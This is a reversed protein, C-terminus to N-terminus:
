TYFQNRLSDAVLQQSSRTGGPGREAQEDRRRRMPDHALRRMVVGFPSIMGYHMIGLVIPSVVRHLLKALGMWLRNLPALWQARATGLLYMAAPNARWWSVGGLITFVTPFLAGFSRNSLYNITGCRPGESTATQV